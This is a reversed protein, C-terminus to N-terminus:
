AEEDNTYIIRKFEDITTIGERVLRAASSRLTSMGEHVAINEIEETTTRAAICNRLGRSISM